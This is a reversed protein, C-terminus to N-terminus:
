EPRPKLAMLRPGSTENYDALDHHAGPVPLFDNQPITQMPLVGVRHATAPVQPLNWEPLAALCVRKM